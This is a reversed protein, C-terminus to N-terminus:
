TPYWTIDEEKKWRLTEPRIRKLNLRQQMWKRRSANELRVGDVYTKKRKTIISWSQKLDGETWNHSFYDVNYRQQPKSTTEM